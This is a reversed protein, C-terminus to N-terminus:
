GVPFADPPDQTFLWTAFFESLDRNTVHEVYAVFDATSRSEGLHDQVWGRLVAFFSDDGLERRLAHLVVGGGDYVTRDFMQDAPPDPPPFGRGQRLATEASDDVSGFGAHEMWMWEGYTAFGENLWTDSWSAPSVADGFWQHALEHALLLHVMPTAEGVALDGDDFLSRTQTEMALGPVAHTVAVGYVDFPYPGFRDAFFRLMDDTLALAPETQARLETLVAHQIAIGDPGDEDILDFRGTMVLVLYSSMPATAEWRWRESSGVTEHSALKGNAVATIGAPVNLDFSWTAKDSPHDNAPM